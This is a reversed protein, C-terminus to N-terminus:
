RHHFFQGNLGNPGPAKTPAIQFIATKVEEMTLPALLADDDGGISLSPM